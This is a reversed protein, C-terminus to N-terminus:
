GTLKTSLRQGDGGLRDAGPQDTGTGSPRYGDRLRAAGFVYRKAIAAREGTAQVDTRMVEDALQNLRTNLEARWARDHGAWWERRRWYRYFFECAFWGLAVFFLTKMILQYIPVESASGVSSAIGSTVFLGFGLGLLVLLATGLPRLEEEYKV